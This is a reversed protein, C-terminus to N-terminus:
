IRLCVFLVTPTHPGFVAVVGSGRCDMNFEVGREGEVTWTANWGVSGRSPFVSVRRWGERGARACVTGGANGLVGVYVCFLGKRAQSAHLPHRVAQSSRIAQSSPFTLLSAYRGGTSKAQPFCPSSPHPPTWYSMACLSRASVTYPLIM